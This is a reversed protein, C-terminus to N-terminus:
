SGDSTYLVGSDTKYASNLPSVNLTLLRDCSIFANAHIDNIVSRPITFSTLNSCGSFVYPSISSLNSNLKVKSLSKCNSFAWRSISTVSEPIYVEKLSCDRFANLGITTLGDPLSVATLSTCKQFAAVISTIGYGISVSIPQKLWVIGSTNNVFGADVLMQKTLEGSWEFEM